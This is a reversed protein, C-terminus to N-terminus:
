HPVGAVAYTTLGHWETLAKSDQLSCHHWGHAGTGFRLPLAFTGPTWLRNNWTTETRIDSRGMSTWAMSKIFASRIWWLISPYRLAIMVQRTLFSPRKMWVRFSGSTRFLSCGSMMILAIGYTHIYVYVYVFATWMENPTISRLKGTCFSKAGVVGELRRRGRSLVQQPGLQRDDGRARGWIEVISNSSSVHMKRGHLYIYIYIYIHTYLANIRTGANFGVYKVQCCKSM